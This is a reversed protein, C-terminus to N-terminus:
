AAHRGDICPAYNTPRLKDLAAKLVGARPYRTSAVQPRSCAPGQSGALHVHGGSRPRCTTRKRDLTQVLNTVQSQLDDIRTHLHAAADNHVRKQHELDRRAPQLADESVRLKECIQCEDETLHRFLADVNWPAEVLAAAEFQSLLDIQVFDRDALKEPIEKSSRTAFEGTLPTPGDSPLFGGLAVRPSPRTAPADLAGPAIWVAM